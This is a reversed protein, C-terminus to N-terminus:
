GKFKKKLFLMDKVAAAKTGRDKTLNRLQNLRRVITAYSDKRVASSLITHRRADSLEKHWGYLHGPVIKAWKHPSTSKKVM